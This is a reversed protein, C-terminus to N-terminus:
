LLTWACIENTVQDSLLSQIFGLSKGYISMGYSLYLASVPAMQSYFVKTGQFNFESENQPAFRQSQNEVVM